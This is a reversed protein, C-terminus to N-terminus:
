GDSERPAQPQRGTKPVFVSRELVQAYIEEYAATTKEWTQEQVVWARGQHALRDRLSGDDLLRSVTQILDQADGARFFLGTEGDRMLERHGGIDSAAVARRMAMAELPKLPTVLETLRTSYRPYVLVDLLAYVGPVREHPIRGPLLVRDGLGLRRVQAVLETEIDGGGLLLLSLNPYRVGLQAFAEVLLNLGEYRYFSGIFGIVKKASLNWARQYEADPPCPMLSDVDVGNRIATLKELPIGRKHLDGRIGQCLVAVHDARQCAITEARRVLKYRWSDQTYTGHDVAADEWFARIEYIVPIGIQRGVRLAPFANLIPSHAHLLDPKEIEVVERIRRTLAVMLQFEGVLPLSARAAKPTRYYRVGAIEQSEQSPEKSSAEGKPSTVAVQWPEKSSAEQKPSTVAVPTWGLKLQERFLNQTRFVYGSQLPASHDLIHLIKPFRNLSNM